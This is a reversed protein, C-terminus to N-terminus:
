YFDLEITARPLSVKLEEETLKKLVGIGCNWDQRSSDIKLIAKKVDYDGWPTDAFEYVHARSFLVIWDDTYKNKVYLAHYNDVIPKLICNSLEWHVSKEHNRNM